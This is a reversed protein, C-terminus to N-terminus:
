FLDKWVFTKHKSESLKKKKGFPSGREQNGGGKHQKKELDGETRGVRKHIEIPWLGWVVKEPISYGEERKYKFWLFTKKFSTDGGVKSNHCTIGKERRQRKSEV